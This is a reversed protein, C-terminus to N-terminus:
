STILGARGGSERVLRAYVRAAATPSRELTEWDVRYLGFRRGFGHLWEYTDTLSWYFYGRVDIGARRCSELVAVHRRIFDSKREDDETAIGNETVLLPLGFAAAERLVVALGPPYEEWGMDTLGLGCRDRHRVEVCGLQGAGLRHRVHLRQYYNVGIFDLTDRAPGAVTVPRAFPLTLRTSGATMAELLARNYGQRAVRALLRDLPHWPRDPAFVAMNHAVGVLAGPNSLRVAAAAAAHAALLTRLASLFAGVSRLGPPMCGDLFGGLLLVMPENFTIWYRVAPLAEAVRGAFAAFRGAAEAETWPAASHLWAPSSFHHLTVLPEAGAARVAEALEGYHALVADDWRDAEPQIRSWEVSFRYANLGLDRLLGIDERFRAYHGTMGPRAGALPDWAAWDAGPAGEVQFSSTAAGWLFPAADRSATM